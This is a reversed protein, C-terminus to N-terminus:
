ESFHLVHYIEIRASPDNRWCDASAGQKQCLSSLFQIADPLDEWVQPLYTSSGQSTTLIVGDEGPVLKSVLDEPSSFELLSPRDLVSIEIKIDDVESLSVRPFRPDATAALVVNRLVNKYMAEHANFSDLICGRLLGKKTLTVFCAAERKLAAPIDAKDKDTVQAGSLFERLRTRAMELLMRQEGTRLGKEQEKNMMSVVTISAAVVLVVALWWKASDSM